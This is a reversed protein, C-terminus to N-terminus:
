RLTLVNRRRQGPAPTNSPAVTEPLAPPKPTRSGAAMFWFISPVRTTVGGPAANGTFVVSLKGPVRLTPKRWRNVDCHVPSAVTSHVFQLRIPVDTTLPAGAGVLM